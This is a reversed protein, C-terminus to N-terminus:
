CHFAVKVDSRASNYLILGLRVGWVLCLLRGFFIVGLMLEYAGEDVEGSTGGVGGLFMFAKGSILIAPPSLLGGGIWTLWLHRRDPAM